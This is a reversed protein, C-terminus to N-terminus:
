RTPEATNQDGSTATPEATNQDGSAGLNQSASRSSPETGTLSKTATATKSIYDADPSNETQVGTIDWGTAATFSFEGTPDSTSVSVEVTGHSGDSAVPNGAVTQVHPTIAFTTTVERFNTSSTFAGAVDQARARPLVTGLLSYTRRSSAESEVQVGSVTITPLEGAATKVVVQTMMLKKASAGTGFTVVTGLAISALNFSGIVLYEVSPNLTQGFIDRYTPDGYENVAEAVSASNGDNSTKISLGTLGWYNKKASFGANSM